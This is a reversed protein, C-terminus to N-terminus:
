NKKRNLSRRMLTRSLFLRETFIFHQFEVELHISNWGQMKLTSFWNNCRCSFGEFGSSISLFPILKSVTSSLFFDQSSLIWHYPIWGHLATQLPSSSGKNKFPLIWLAKLAIFDCRQCDHPIIEACFDQLTFTLAVSRSSTQRTWRSPYSSNNICWQWPEGFKAVSAIWKWLALHNLM